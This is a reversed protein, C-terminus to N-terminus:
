EKPKNAFHIKDLLSSIITNSLLFGEDTLSWNGDAKVLGRKVYERVADEMESIDLRYFDKLYDPDIGDSLRLRLMIYESLRERCTINEYEDIVTGDTEIGTIYKEIDRVISYRSSFCDSHAAPGFGIYPELLWYKKNHRSQMGPKAWNSIEYHEYGAERLRECILLYMDAQEDDGPVVLGERRWLPTGEEIKLGYCSIHEPDLEIVAALSKLLSDATQGELGYMLDVSINHIKAKRANLFATRAEEFSHLRGLSKLEGADASQIGISIRTFGNRRLRKLFNYSTSEPNLEVTIEADRNVSCSKKIKKLLSILNAHGILAPTGGGFYITEVESKIHVASETIHKTLADHYRNTQRTSIDSVSYFDCYECKRKCFPIHVYIGIPRTDINSAIPRGAKIRRNRNM